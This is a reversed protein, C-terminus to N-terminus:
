LGGYQQQPPVERCTRAQVAAQVATPTPPSQVISDDVLRGRQIESTRLLHRIRRGASDFETVFQVIGPGRGPLCRGWFLRSDLIPTEDEHHLIRGPYAYWGVNRESPDFAPDHVSRLLVSLGADCGECEVGAM